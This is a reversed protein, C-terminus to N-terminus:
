FGREVCERDLLIELRRHEVQEMQAELPLDELVVRDRERVDTLPAPIEQHNPVEVSGGDPRVVRVGSGVPRICLLKGAELVDDLEIVIAPGPVVAKLERVPLLVPVTEVSLVVESPGM